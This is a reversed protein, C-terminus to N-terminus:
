PPPTTQAGGAPGRAGPPPDIPLDPRRPARPPRDIRAARTLHVRTRWRPPPPRRDRYASYDAADYGRRSGWGRGKQGVSDEVGRPGRLAPVEGHIPFLQWTGM